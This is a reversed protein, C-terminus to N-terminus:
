RPDSRINAYSILASAALMLSLGICALISTVLGYAFTDGFSSRNWLQTLPALLCYLVAAIASNHSKLLEASVVLLGVCMMVLLVGITRFNMLAEVLPAFGTSAISGRLQETPFYKDRFEYTIQTPKDGPYLFGPIMLVLGNLYTQGWRASEGDRNLYACLNGFPAGFENTAPNLAYGLRSVDAMPKVVMELDGKLIGYGIQARNSYLVGMVLYLILIITVVKLSLRRIPKHWSWALVFVLALAALPGRRGLLLAVALSIGGSLFFGLILSVIYKRHAGGSAKMALGVGFLAAAAILCQISPLTLTLESAVSQYIAKGLALTDFGGARALNILEFASSAAALVLGTRLFLTSTSDSYVVQPDLPGYRRVLGVGATVGAALGLLGLSVLSLAEGVPLNSGFIGHLEFGFLLSIPASMCYMVFFLSFLFVLSSYQCAALYGIRLVVISQITVIITQAGPQLMGNAVIAVGYLLGVVLFHTGM